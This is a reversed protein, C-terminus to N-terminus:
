FFFGGFTAACAVVHIEDVSDAASEAVARSGAQVRRETAETSAATATTSLWYEISSLLVRCAAPLRLLSQRDM